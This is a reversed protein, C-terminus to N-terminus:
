EAVALIARSGQTLQTLCTYPSFGHKGASSGLNGVDCPQVTMGDQFVSKERSEQATENM